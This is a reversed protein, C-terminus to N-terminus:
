ASAKSSRKREICRHLEEVAEDLTLISGLGEDPFVYVDGDGNAQSPYSGHEKFSQADQFYLRHDGDGHIDRGLFVLPEVVPILLETDVYSVM